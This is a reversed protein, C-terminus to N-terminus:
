LWCTITDNLCYLRPLLDVKTYWSQNVCDNCLVGNLLYVGLAFSLDFLCMFPALVNSQVHM